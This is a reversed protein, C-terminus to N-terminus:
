KNVIPANGNKNKGTDNANKTKNANKNSKTPPVVIETRHLHEEKETNNDTSDVGILILCVALLGICISWMWVNACRQKRAFVFCNLNKSDSGEYFIEDLEKDTLTPKYRKKVDSVQRQAFHLKKNLVFFLSYVLNILSLGVLFWSIKMINPSFGDFIEQHSITRIAIVSIFFTVSPLTSKKFDNSFDAVYSAVKNEFDLLIKSLENRISIYNKAKEITYYKFNSQIADFTNEGFAIVEGEKLNISVINRAIMIKDYINGDTYIWLYIDHLTKVDTTNISLLSGMKENSVIYQRTRLGKMKYTIAESSITIFDFLFSLAYYFFAKTFLKEIADESDYKGTDMDSPLLNKYSLDSYVLSCKKDRIENRREVDDDALNANHNNSAQCFSITSTHWPVFNDDHVLVNLGQGIRSNWIELFECLAKQSLNEAFCDYDYVHLVNVHKAKAIKMKLELPVDESYKISACSVAFDTWTQQGSHSNYEASIEGAELITIIVSDAQGAVAIVEDETATNLPFGEFRYKAEYYDANEIEGQESLVPNVCIKRVLNDIQVNM